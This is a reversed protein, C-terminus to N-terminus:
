VNVYPSHLAVRQGHQEVNVSAAALPAVAIAPDSIANLVKVGPYPECLARADARQLHDVITALQAALVLEEPSWLRPLLHQQGLPLPAFPLTGNPVPTATPKQAGFIAALLTAAVGPEVQALANAFWRMAEDIAATQTTDPDTPLTMLLADKDEMAVLRPCPVIGCERLVLGLTVEPKATVVVKAPLIPSLIGEPFDYWDLEEQSLPVVSCTGLTLWRYLRATADRYGVWSAADLVQVGKPGTLDSRVALYHGGVEAWGETDYRTPDMACTRLAVVLDQATAGVSLEAFKYGKAGGRSNGSPHVQGDLAEPAVLSYQMWKASESFDLEDTIGVLLSWVRDAIGRGKSELDELNLNAGKGTDAETRLQQLAGEQNHCARDLDSLIMKVEVLESLATGRGDLLKPLRGLDNFVTNAHDKLRRVMADLVVRARRGGARAAGLVVQGLADGLGSPRQIAGGLPIGFLMTASRLPVRAEDAVVMARHAAIIRRVSTATLQRGNAGAAADTRVATAASSVVMAPRREEPAIEEPPTLHHRLTEVVSDFIPAVSRRDVAKTADSSPSLPLQAPAKIGRDGLVTVTTAHTPAAGAAFREDLSELGRYLAEVGRAANSLLREATPLGPGDQVAFWPYLAVVHLHYHWQAGPPSSAGGLEKLLGPLLGAGTGGAVSGVVICSEAGLQGGVPATRVGYRPANNNIDVVWQPKPANVPQTIEIGNLRIWHATLRPQGFFGKSTDRELERRRLLGSHCIASEAGPLPAGGVANCDVLRQGTRVRVQHIILNNGCPVSRIAKIIHTSDSSAQDILVAQEPLDILGDGKLGADEQAARRLVLHLLAWAGTGGVGYFLYSEM